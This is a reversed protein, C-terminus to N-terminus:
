NGKFADSPIPVIILEKEGDNVYQLKVPWSGTSTPEECIGEQWSFKIEFRNTNGEIKRDCKILAYDGNPSAELGLVDGNSVISVRDSVLNWKAKELIDRRINIVIPKKGSQEKRFAIYSEVIANKGTGRIPKIPKMGLIEFAAKM